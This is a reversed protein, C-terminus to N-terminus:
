KKKFNRYEYNIYAKIMGVWIMRTLKKDLKKASSKKSINRLIVKIRKNDVIQKKSTKNKLVKKILNTRVKILNLLKNDLKDLKGRIKLINKNKNLSM